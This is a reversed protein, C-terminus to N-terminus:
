ALPEIIQHQCHELWHQIPQNELHLDNTLESLPKLVFARLHARPHPLTLTDTASTIGEIAIIDLDLTRPGWRIDRTRGASNEIQQLAHLLSLPTGTYKAKCIANLYDPQHEPGGIAASKYWRSCQLNTLGNIRSIADIAHKLQETPVALNSGLAIFVEAM